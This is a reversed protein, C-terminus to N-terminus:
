VEYLIIGFPDAPRTPFPQPAIQVAIPNVAQADYALQTNLLFSKYLYILDFTGNDNDFVFVIAVGQTQAASTNGGLLLADVTSSGSSAYAASIAALVQPSVNFYIGTNASLNSSTPLVVQALTNGPTYNVSQTQLDLNFNSFDGPNFFGGSQIIGNSNVTPLPSPLSPLSRTRAWFKNGDAGNSGLLLTLTSSSAVFATAEDTGFQLEMAAKLTALSSGQLGKVYSNAPLADGNNAATLLADMDTAVAATNDGSQVIIGFRVSKDVGDLIFPMELEVIEGTAPTGSYTIALDAAAMAAGGAFHAFNPLTTATNGDLSAKCGPRNSLTTPPPLGVGINITGKRGTFLKQQSQVPTIVRDYLAM